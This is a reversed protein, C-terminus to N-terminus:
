RALFDVLVRLSEEFYEEQVFHGAKFTHVEKNTLIGKWKELQNPKIFADEMGWLILTPHNKISDIQEWQEKYWNSSGVLAQGIKLLGYRNAKNPFPQQYHQHVNKPLKKTDYFAKKLLVKPSFNTNLYIANGLKSHLLKNVKQAAEDTKTEWLWTNFLVINSVKEPHQIAYPLGIPGGFDHVILTFSDLQLSDIFLSLNEYHKQPTGAFNRPKDSLGFGLHDIAICRYNASLKKVYNRYLFSWTPTGHVFLLVEGEGEDIYHMKGAPMEMFNSSFPYLNKDVWDQAQLTQSAAFFSLLFLLHKM